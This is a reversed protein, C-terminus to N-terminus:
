KKFDIPFYPETSYKFYIRLLPEIETTPADNEMLKRIHNALDNLMEGAKSQELISSRKEEM